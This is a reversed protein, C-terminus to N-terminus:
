DGYGVKNGQKEHKAFLDPNTRRQYAIFDPDRLIDRHEKHMWEKAVNAPIEYKLTGLGKVARTSQNRKATDTVVSRAEAERRDYNEYHKAAERDAVRELINSMNPVPRIPPQTDGM